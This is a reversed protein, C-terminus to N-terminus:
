VGLLSNLYFATAAGFFRESDVGELSSLIWEEGRNRAAAKIEELSPPLLPTRSTKSGARIGLKSSVLDAVKEGILRSTTFKGGAVTILGHVGESEHDFLEFTRSLGRGGEDGSKILPRVSAYARHFGVERLKPVMQSGETLLLDLDEQSVAVQDPDETIVATTGAIYADEAYPVLIDGDSPPRMRNIVKSTLKIRAVAMVGATPIVEVEAGAMRAVEGAWPGAANVVLDGQIEETSGTRERFLKVGKIGGGERLFGVVKTKAMIRAGAKLASLAISTLLELGRVVKDQVLIARLVKPNVNPEMIRLEENSVDRWVIGLAGLAKTLKEYYEVEEETLALFLGGTDRVAHPAIKSVVENELACERAAEPDNVAYRAGSHLLGHFRGSTGSGIFGREVLCVNVGRLSLDLTTFLGTAGAGVVIVDFKV